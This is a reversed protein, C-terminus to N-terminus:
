GAAANKVAGIVRRVQEEGMGPWIPLSIEEEFNRYSEPFDGKELKYWKQYYPMVHLPIFHVSVGIGAEQLKKIFHDRSLSLASPNLRLPYLHRADGTGTPPLLFREDGGFAEDYRRAIDRRMRLLEVARRLQVRGIAALIDPMNYKFGPATVEYYWSAEKDTYRSWITRYIGHSRMVEIRKALNRDQCVIMGGEGTTITKTAYFSFVGLDGLAGAFGGEWTKSSGTSDMGPVLSPFSHAADEVVGAGYKRSVALIAEMNCPLGGYHVPIVARPRGRPGFGRGSTRRRPPYAPLGRDLRDLTRELAQPDMHFSDPATDIFVVEAGLYRVVEATATFTYSPVAVADGPGAGLAELALHLGSTASNVALCTLPSSRQFDAAPLGFPGAPDPGTNKLFDEPNELFAAFEKEFALTEPGTTIWGSRLARIAAEEEERGFYPFAFPINDM